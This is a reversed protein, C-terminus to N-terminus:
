KDAAGDTLAEAWAQDTESVGNPNSRVLLTFVTSLGDWHAPEGYRSKILRRPEKASGASKRANCKCCSTVFNPEDHLGGRAFAEIHDVVAGLHDLLPAADRRWRPDFYALPGSYGQARTWRELYHMVPAFIVPRGCWRCLWKDRRFVRVQLAKSLPPRTRQRTNTQMRPCRLRVTAGARPPAYVRRM